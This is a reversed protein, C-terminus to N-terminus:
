LYNLFPHFGLIMQWFVCFSSYNQTIIDEIVAKKFASIETKYLDKDKRLVEIQKNLMDAAVKPEWQIALASQVKVQNLNNELNQIKSFLLELTEALKGFYEIPEKNLVSEKLDKLIQEKDM